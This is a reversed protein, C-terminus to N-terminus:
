TSSKYEGQMVIISHHFDVIEINISTVISKNFNQIRDPMVAHVPMIEGYVGDEIEVESDYDNYLVIDNFIIKVPCLDNVYRIADYITIESCKMIDGSLVYIKNGQICQQLKLDM